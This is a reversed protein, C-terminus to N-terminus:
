FKVEPANETGVQSEFLEKKEFGFM